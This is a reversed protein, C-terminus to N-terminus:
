TNGTLLTQKVNEMYLDSIPLEALNEENALAVLKLIKKSTNVMHVHKANVIFSKHVRIFPLPLIKEVEKLTKTVFMSNGDSKYVRCCNNDSQVYRINDFQMFFHGETNKVTIHNKLELFRKEFKYLAITLEDPDIPKDLFYLVDNNVAKKAYRDFDTTMIIFPLETTFQRIEKILDFGNEDGLQVDLFVIHPKTSLALSIGKNLSHAIGVEVFNQHAKLATQLNKLSGLSDEVIIYNYNM